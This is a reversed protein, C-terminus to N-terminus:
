ATGFYTTSFHTPIVDAIETTLIKMDPYKAMLEEIASPKSFLTLLIVQSDKVLYDKKLVEIAESVSSSYNLIPYM